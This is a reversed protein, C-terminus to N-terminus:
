YMIIIIIIIIIIAKYKLNQKKYHMTISEYHSSINNGIKKKDPRGVSLM